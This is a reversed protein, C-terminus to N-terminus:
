FFLEFLAIILWIFGAISAGLIIFILILWSTFINRVISVKFNVAEYPCLEACCYCTICTKKEWDPVYKNPNLEKPPTIANVPCNKWCTACLKCKSIDFSVHSQFLVKGVYKGLFKPLFPAISHM